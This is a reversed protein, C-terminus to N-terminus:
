APALRTPRPFTNAVLPLPRPWIPPRAPQPRHHSAGAAGGSVAARDALEALADGRGHADAVEDLARGSAYANMYAPPVGDAVLAGVAAGASTGIILDAESPSWGTETELAELAGILWSAGLVGGAGLVLGVRM